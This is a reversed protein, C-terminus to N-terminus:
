TWTKPIYVVQFKLLTKPTQVIRFLQMILTKSFQEKALGEHIEGPTGKSAPPTPASATGYTRLWDGELPKIPRLRVCQLPPLKYGPGSHLLGRKTTKPFKGSHLEQSTTTAARGPQLQAIAGSASHSADIETRRRNSKKGQLCPPSWM